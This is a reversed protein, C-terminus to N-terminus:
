PQQSEQLRRYDEPTDLDALIMSEPVDVRALPGRAVLQNIGEDAALLEVDAAISWRFLVPHGRREGHCPAWVNTERGVSSSQERYVSILRDILAADLTPVDAPALLWCDDARPGYSEARALAFQVSQKMDRPASAPVVLDAGCARGLEALRHDDPHVVMIVHSVNSARWAALVGEIITKGNWPLLLKPAGMRQSRGAAPVIAFSQM